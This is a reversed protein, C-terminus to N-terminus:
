RVIGARWRSLKLIFFTLWKDTVKLKRLMLGMQFHIFYRSYLILSLKAMVKLKDISKEAQRSAIYHEPILASESICVFWNLEEETKRPVRQFQQLLGQPVLVRTPFWHEIACRITQDVKVVVVRKVGMLVWLVFDKSTIPQSKPIGWFFFRLM